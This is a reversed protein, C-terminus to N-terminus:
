TCVPPVAPRGRLQSRDRPLHCLPHPFDALHRLLHRAGMESDAQCHRRYCGMEKLCCMSPHPESCISCGDGCRRITSTRPAARASDLPRPPSAYLSLGYFMLAYLVLMSISSLQLLSRFAISDGACEFRGIKDGVLSSAAFSPSFSFFPAVGLAACCLQALMHLRAPLPPAHTVMFLLYVDTTSKDSQGM